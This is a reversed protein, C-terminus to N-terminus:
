PTTGNHFVDMAPEPVRKACFGVFVAELATNSWFFVSNEFCPVINFENSM